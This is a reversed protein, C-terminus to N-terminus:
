IRMCMHMHMNMYMCEYMRVHMRRVYTFVYMCACACTCVNVFSGHRVRMHSDKRIDNRNLWGPKQNDRGRGRERERERQRERNQQATPVVLGPQLPPESTRAEPSMVVAPFSSTLDEALHSSRRLRMLCAHFEWIERRGSLSLPRHVGHYDIDSNNEVPLPVQEFSQVACRLAADAPCLCSISDM